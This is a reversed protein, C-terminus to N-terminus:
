ASGSVLALGDNRRNSSSCFGASCDGGAQAQGADLSRWGRAVISVEEALDASALEGRWVAANFGLFGRSVFAPFRTLLDTHSQEDHPEPLTDHSPRTCGALSASFYAPKM